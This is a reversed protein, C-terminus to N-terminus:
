VEFITPDVIFESRKTVGVVGTGRYAYNWTGKVTSASSLTLPQAIVHYTGVADRVLETDSPYSYPTIEGNPAQLRFTITTPDALTTEANDSYFFMDLRVDTGAEYVNAM